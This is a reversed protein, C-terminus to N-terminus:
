ARPSFRHVAEAMSREASVEVYGVSYGNVAFAVGVSDPTAAQLMPESDLLKEPKVVKMAAHADHARQEAPYMAAGAGGTLGAAAAVASKKLFDRRNVNM